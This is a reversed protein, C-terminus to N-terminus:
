GEGCGEGGGRAGGGGGGEISMKTKKKKIQKESHPNSTLKAVFHPLTLRVTNAHIENWNVNCTPTTTERTTNGTTTPDNHDNNGFTQQYYQRTWNQRQEDTWAAPKKAKRKRKPKAAKTKPTAKPKDSATKESQALEESKGKRTARRPNRRPKQQNTKNKLQPNNPTRGEPHQREQRLAQTVASASNSVVPTLNTVNNAREHTFHRKSRCNTTLKAQM